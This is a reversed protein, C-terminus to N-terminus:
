GYKYNIVVCHFIKFSNFLKRIHFSSVQLKQFAEEFAQIQRKDANKRQEEGTVKKKAAEEAKLKSREDNKLAMFM